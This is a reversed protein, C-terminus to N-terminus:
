RGLPSTGSWGSQRILTRISTRHNSTAAGLLASVGSWYIRQAQAVLPQRALSGLYPSELSASLHRAVEAASVTRIAQVTRRRRLVAPLERILAAQSRLKAHLWGDRAATAMLVVEAALLAPLLPLLLGGPYDSLVTWWRNRELLFWKRPGKAFEYNHEVRASPVLGV